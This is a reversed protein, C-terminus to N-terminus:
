RVHQMSSWGPGNCTRYKELTEQNVSFVSPYLANFFCRFARAKSSQSMISKPNTKQRKTQQSSGENASARDKAPASNGTGGQNNGPSPSPVLAQGSSAASPSSSTGTASSGDYETAGGSPQVLGVAELEILHLLSLEHSGQPQEIEEPSAYELIGKIKEYFLDAVEPDYRLVDDKILAELKDHRNPKADADHAHTNSTVSTSESSNGDEGPQEVTM